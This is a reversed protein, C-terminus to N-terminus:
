LDRRAFRLFGVGMALLGLCVYVLAAAPWGTPSWLEVLWSQPLVPLLLDAAYTWPAEQAATCLLYLVGSAVVGLLALVRAWAPSTTLQSCLMGLGAFPVGFLAARASLTSLGWLLHLPDQSVMLTMGMVWGGVISLLVAVAALLGQGVFRGMVLEARGTRLAEFRIAGSQVDMAVAEAATSAMLFPIFALGLWLQFIAITPYSLLQDLLAEDGVLDGVMRRFSDSQLMQETLAGPWRSPMVGLTTALQEEMAHQVQLFVYLGGLTAILYSLVLAVARWTRVARKVEFRAVIWTDVLSRVLSM